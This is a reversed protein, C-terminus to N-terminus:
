VVLEKVTTELRDTKWTQVAATIKAPLDAASAQGSVELIQERSQRCWASAVAPANAGLISLPASIAEALQEEHKGYFDDIWSLFQAPKNSAREAANAEKTAMRKLADVLLASVATKLKEATASDQGDKQKPSPPPAVPVPAPREKAHKEVESVITDILDKPTAPFAAEILARAGEKPLEGISLQNAIALLSSVQAGNLATAQVDVSGATAAAAKLDAPVDEGEPQATNTDAGGATATADANGAFESVPFGNEDLPVTAGQVLFVDGGSVPELDLYLRGENRTMVGADISEKIFAIQAASDGRLLGNLNHKAYYRERDQEPLLQTNIAGEWIDFYQALTFKVLDIPLQEVNNMTTGIMRQLLHPFIGYFRAIEEVGFERTQLFQSDEPAISIANAKAGMQLTAVRSASADGHIDRWEERFTRRADDNAFMKGPSEVVIRPIGDGGFFNAGYKETALGASIAERAARITGIGVVGDITHINPVHFVESPKLDEPARGPLSYRWVFGSDTWAPTVHWPELRWLSDVQGEYDLIKRALGNGWNVQDAWLLRRLNGFPMGPRAEGAFKRSLTHGKARRKGERLMGGIEVDTGDYVNLPLCGGLCMIRTAAWVASYTLAISENVEVGAAPKSGGHGSYGGTWLRKDTWQSLDFLRSLGSLGRRIWGNGSM